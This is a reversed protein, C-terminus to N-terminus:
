LVMGPVTSLNWTGDPNSALLFGRGRLILAEIHTGPLHVWEDPVLLVASMAAEPLPGIPPRTRSPAPLQRQHPSRPKQKRQVLEARGGETGGPRHGAAQRHAAALVPRSRAPGAGMPIHPKPRFYLFRRHYQATRRLLSSVM